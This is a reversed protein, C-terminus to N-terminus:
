LRSLREGPNRHRPHDHRGSLDRDRHANRHRFGPSVAANLALAAGANITTASATLTTTTATLPTSSVTVTVATSASALFNPDGGYSAVISHTGATKLEQSALTAVGSANIPASGINAAGDFFVVTGAPASTSGASSTVTATLTVSAGSDITTASATLTTDSAAPLAAPTATAVIVDVASQSTLM